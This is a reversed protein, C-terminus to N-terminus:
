RFPKQYTQNCSFRKVSKWKPTVETLKLLLFTQSSLMKPKCSIHCNEPCDQSSFYKFDSGVSMIHVRCDFDALKHMKWIDAYIIILCAFIRFKIKHLFIIGVLQPTLVQGVGIVGIHQVYGRTLFPSFCYFTSITQLTRFRKTGCQKRLSFFMYM